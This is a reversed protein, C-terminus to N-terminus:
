ATGLQKAFWDALYNRLEFKRRGHGVGEIMQPSAKVAEKALRLAGRPDMVRDDISYGVLLPCEIKQAIGALTYAAMTKRADALDKAGSLWRLREQIPPYYDFIDERLSFAGSWVACAKFRKEVTVGRPATYGGMSSGHIAMRNVDVDPRSALYDAVAKVYRETDPTAYIKKLRLASGQGPGDVDLFSIGRARYAGSGQGADRRMLMGDAGGYNFVVPAKQGAPARAPFFFGELTQGEYPIQVREFTPPVLKFAKDFDTRLKTYAPLMRPDAEALYVVAERWFGVARLYYESATVKLGDAEFKAAMAENKEAMRAHEGYWSQPNFPKLRHAIEVMDPDPNEAHAVMRVEMQGGGPLGPAPYLIAEAEKPDFAQALADRVLVPAISVGAATAKLLQRKDFAM